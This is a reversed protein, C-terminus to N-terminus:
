GLAKLAAIVDPPIAQDPIQLPVKPEGFKASKGPAFTAGIVQQLATDDGEALFFSDNMTGWKAKGTASTILTLDDPNTGAWLRYLALKPKEFQKDNKDRLNELFSNLEGGFTDVSHRDGNPSLIRGEGAWRRQGEDYFYLTVVTNAGTGDPRKTAYFRYTHGFQWDYPMHSHAGRGEGKFRTVIVRPDHDIVQPHLDPGTDWVSFIIRKGQKRLDQIGTYGGAKASPWWDCGCFYVGPYDVLVQVEGYIATFPKHGKAPKWFLYQASAVAAVAALSIALIARFM